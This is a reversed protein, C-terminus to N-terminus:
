VVPDMFWRFSKSKSEIDYERKIASSLFSFIPLMTIPRLPRFVSNKKETDISTTAQQASDLHDWSGFFLFFIVICPGALMCSRSKALFHKM